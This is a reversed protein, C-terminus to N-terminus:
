DERRKNVGSMHKAFSGQLRPGFSYLMLEAELSIVFNRDSGMLSLWSGVLHM